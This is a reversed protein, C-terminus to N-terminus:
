SNFKKYCDIVGRAQNMLSFQEARQRFLKGMETLNQKEWKGYAEKLSAKLAAADNAEILWGERPNHVLAKVDGVDTAICPVQQEAAQLLVVPFGESVSSLVMLDSQSIADQLEEKNLWGMFDVRTDLELKRSLEILSDKEKGEGCLVLKWNLQRVEALAKLLLHFNKVTELRGVAIIQFVNENKPKNIPPEFHIGNYITHLNAQNMGANLLIAKIENSVTIVSDARRVSSINIKEFFRGKLGRDTFDLYPNSHVTVIWKAKIFPKLLGMIMNARPGHTHVIEAQSDNIYNILKKFVRLDYRSSQQIVTVDIGEIRAAAAVPGEELVLLEATVHNDKLASLLSVIHSLGGGYENGANIHIANM